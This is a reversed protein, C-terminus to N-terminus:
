SVPAFGGESVGSVQYGQGTVSHNPGSTAIIKQSPGHDTDLRAHHKLQVFSMQRHSHKRTAPGKV